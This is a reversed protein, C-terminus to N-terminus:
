GVLHPLLKSLSQRLKLSGFANCLCRLLYFYRIICLVQFAHSFHSIHVSLSFPYNAFIYSTLVWASAKMSCLVICYALNTIVTYLRSLLARLLRCITAKFRTPSFGNRQKLKNQSTSSLRYNTVNQSVSCDPLVFSEIGGNRKLKTLELVYWTLIINVYNTRRYWM